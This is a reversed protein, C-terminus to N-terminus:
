LRDWGFLAEELKDAARAVLLMDLWLKDTSEDLDAIFVVEIEDSDNISFNVQRFIGAVRLTILACLPETTAGVLSLVFFRKKNLREDFMSSVYVLQTRGNGTAVEFFLQDGDVIRHQRIQSRLNAVISNYFVQLDPDTCTLERQEFLFNSESRTPVFMINGCGPCKGREGARNDPVSYNRSCSPCRFDIM